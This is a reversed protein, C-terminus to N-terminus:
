SILLSIIGLLVLPPVVEAAGITPAVLARVLFVIYIAYAAVLWRSRLARAVAPRHDHGADPLQLAPRVRCPAAASASRGLTANLGIADGVINYLIANVNLEAFIDQSADCTYVLVLCSYSRNALYFIVVAQPFARGPM